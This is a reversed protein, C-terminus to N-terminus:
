NNEEAILKEQKAIEANAEKLIQSKQESTIGSNLGIFFEMFSAPSNVLESFLVSYAESHLFDETKAPDKHHRKGDESKVGYSARIMDDILDMFGLVDNNAQLKEVYDKFAQDTTGYKLLFRSRELDTLNFYALETAQNGNFDTYNITKGIM